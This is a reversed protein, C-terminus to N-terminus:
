ASAYLIPWSFITSSRLRASFASPLFNSTLLEVVFHELVAGHREVHEVRLDVAPDGFLSTFSPLMGIIDHLIGVEHQSNSGPRVCAHVEHAGARSVIKKELLFPPVSGARDIAFPSAEHEAADVGTTAHEPEVFRSGGRCVPDNAAHM